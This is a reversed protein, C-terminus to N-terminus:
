YSGSHRRNTLNFQTTKHILDTVRSINNSNIRTATLRMNLSKLYVGVDGVEEALEKRSRVRFYEVRKKDEDSCSPQIFLGSNQLFGIRAEPDEPLDPVILDPLLARAEAREHKSDDLFCISEIQM